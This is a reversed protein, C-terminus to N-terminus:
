VPERRPSADLDSFAPYWSHYTSQAGGSQRGAPEGPRLQPVLLQEAAAVGEAPSQASLVPLASRVAWRLWLDGGLSSLFNENLNLDIAALQRPRESIDICAHSKFELTKGPLNISSKSHPTTQNSNLYKHQLEQALGTEPLSSLQNLSM